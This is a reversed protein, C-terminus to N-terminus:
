VRYKGQSIGQVPGTRLAPDDPGQPGQVRCFLRYGEVSTMRSSAGLAKLLERELSGLGTFSHAEPSSSLLMHEQSSLTVSAALIAAAPAEDPRAPVAARIQAPRGQVAVLEDALKAERAEFASRAAPDAM